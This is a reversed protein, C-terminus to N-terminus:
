GEDRENGLAQLLWVAVRRMVRRDITLSLHTAGPVLVFTAGLPAAAEVARAQERPVVADRGGYILMLPCTIRRVSGVVDLRRILDVTGIRTRVAPTWWERYIGLTGLDRLLQWAVPYALIRAESRYVARTISISAPAEMIVLADVTLMGTSTGDAVARASICGGQSIGIVGVRPYRERLWAVGAAVNELVSPFDLVRPSEGHGDVDIALVALGQDALTYMRPWAYLLKHDGAGHVILVAHQAGHLPEVLVAPMPGGSIPVDVRAVRRGDRAGPAFITTSTIERQLWTALGAFLLLGVLAGLIVHWWRTEGLLLVGVVTGIMAAAVFPTYRRGLLSLGRWGASAAALEALLLWLLAWLVLTM